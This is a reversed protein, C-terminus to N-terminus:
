NANGQHSVIRLRKEFYTLWEHIKMLSNTISHGNKIPSKTLNYNKIYEPILGKDSIYSVLIKEWETPQRVKKSLTRQHM